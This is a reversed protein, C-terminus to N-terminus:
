FYTSYRVSETWVQTHGDTTRSFREVNGGLLLLLQCHQCPPRLSPLGHRHPSANHEAATVAETVALHRLPKPDSACRDALPAFPEAHVAQLPYEILWPRPCWSGYRVHLDFLHDGCGQLRYRRVARM